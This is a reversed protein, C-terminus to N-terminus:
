AGGGLDPLVIRDTVELGEQVAKWYTYVVAAGRETLHVVDPPDDKRRALFGVNIAWELQSDPDIRGDVVEALHRLAKAVGIQTLLPDNRRM